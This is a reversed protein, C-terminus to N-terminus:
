RIEKNEKSLLSCPNGALVHMDGEATL